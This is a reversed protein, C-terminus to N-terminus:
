VNVKYWGLHWIAVPALRSPQRYGTRRGNFLEHEVIVVCGLLAQFLDFLLSLCM